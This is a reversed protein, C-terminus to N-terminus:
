IGHKKAKEYFTSEKVQLHKATKRKDGGCEKLALTIIRKEVMDTMEELPIGPKYFDEIRKEGLDGSIQIDSIKIAAGQSLIVSRELVNKLERVNGPWHYKTLEQMAGASIELSPKGMERCNKTIFYDSLLPIDEKRERLAPLTIFFVNLRFYLDERFQGEKIMKELPRNTAAIVRVDVNIDKNGGLRRLQRKELVRLLKQQCNASLDGVEDLFITGEDAQEFYGIKRSVAGTFSGMEHGFLESDLLTEPLGAANVVVFPKDKRSSAKYVYHALCEKGTGSEGLLLVTSNTKSVKDALSLCEKLKESQGIIEYKEKQKKEYINIKSLLSAKELARAVAMRLDLDRVAEKDLYDCAGLKMAEVADKLSRMVGTIIIFALGSHEQKVRRLLEFGDIRPMQADAIILDVKELKEIAEEGDKATIIDPYLPKLWEYYTRRWEPDDEVILIRAM